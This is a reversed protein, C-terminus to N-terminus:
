PIGTPNIRLSALIESLSELDKPEAFQLTGAVAVEPQITVSVLRTLSSTPLCRM